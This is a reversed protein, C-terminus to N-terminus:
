SLGSSIKSFVPAFAIKPIFSFNLIGFMILSKALSYLFVIKTESISLVFNSKAYEASESTLVLAKM